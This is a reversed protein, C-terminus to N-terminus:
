KGAKKANAAASPSPIPKKSAIIALAVLFLDLTETLMPKSWTGMRNASNMEMNYVPIAACVTPYTGKNTREPNKKRIKEARAACKILFQCFHM